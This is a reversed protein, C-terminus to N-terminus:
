EMLRDHGSKLPKVVGSREMGIVFYKTEGRWPIKAYREVYDLKVREGSLSAAELADFLSDNGSAVSFSFVENLNNGRADIAGFSQMNLQGESTKFLMGRKSMKIVVGSRSGKSYSGYYLFLMVALILLGIVLFLRRFFRKIRAAVSPQEASGKPSEQEM